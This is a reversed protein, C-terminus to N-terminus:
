IAMKNWSCSKATGVTRSMRIGMEQKCSGLGNRHREEVEADVEAVSM